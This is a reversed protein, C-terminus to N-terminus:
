KTRCDNCFPIAVIKWIKTERKYNEKDTEREKKQKRITKDERESIAKKKHECIVKM